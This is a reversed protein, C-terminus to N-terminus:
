RSNTCTSGNACLIKTSSSCSSCYYCSYLHKGNLSPIANAIEGWTFYKTGNKGCSSSPTFSWYGGTIPNHNMGGENGGTYRKGGAYFASKYVTGDSRMTTKTKWNQAARLTATKVKSKAVSLSSHHGEPIYVLYLIYHRFATASMSNGARDYYTLNVDSTINKYVYNTDATCGSLSDNCKYRVYNYSSSNDSGMMKASYTPPTKDIKVTYYCSASGGPNAVYGYYTTTGERSVTVSRVGNTSNGSTAMGYNTATGTINLYLNVNTRNWGNGNPGVNASISCKPPNAKWQAVVTIDQTAKSSATITTNGSKWGNFIYGSRSPTCLTGWTQNYQKTISKSSCGSGGNDNYRLTHLKIWNAYLILECDGTCFDKGKYNKSQDYSKGTGNPKTNWATAGNITYGSRTLNVWGSNNWDVLGDTGIEGNGVGSGSTNYLFNHMYLQNDLTVFNGSTGIRSGHSSALSGGNMNIKIKVRSDDNFQATLTIQNNIPGAIKDKNNYTKGDSGLWNVYRDTTTNIGSFLTGPAAVEYNKSGKSVSITKSQTKYIYKVEANTVTSCYGNKDKKEYTTKSGKTCKMNLCYQYDDGYKIVTVVTSSCDADDLGIDKILDREKLETYAIDHTDNEINKSFLDDEYSDVYLKSASLIAKGYQDYKNNTNATQVTRMTPFAMVILLGLIAMAVLLEVMTFGKNNLNISNRKRNM